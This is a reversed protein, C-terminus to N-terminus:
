VRLRTTPEIARTRSKICHSIRSKAPNKFYTEFVGVYWLVCNASFQFAIISLIGFLSRLYTALFGGDSKAYLYAYSLNEVRPAPPKNKAVKPYPAM